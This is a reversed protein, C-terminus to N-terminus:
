VTFEEAAHWKANKAWSKKTFLSAYVIKESDFIAQGAFQRNSLSAVALDNQTEEQKLTFNDDLLDRLIGKAKEEEKERVEELASMLGDLTSVKRIPIRTNPRKVKDGLQKGRQIAVSGYCERILASWVSRWYTPSPAREVGVVAGDILIIAGCQGPVCEFEAVFQDLENKYKDLFYELHGDAHAGVSQNFRSIDDWLKGYERVDRKEFAAERLPHPLILMKYSGQRIMGGQSQQICMATDYQRRGRKKVLGICSIAHDQGQRKDVIGAHLPVLLTGDTPNDFVMSGYSVTSTRAQQEGHVDMPSVFRDDHLENDMTLPIVSMIGVSQMRGIQMGRLVERITTKRKNSLVM